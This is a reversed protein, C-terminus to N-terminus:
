EHKSVGHIPCNQSHAVPLVDELYKAKLAKFEAQTIHGEDRSVLVRLLSQADFIDNPVAIFGIDRQGAALPITLFYWNVCKLVATV